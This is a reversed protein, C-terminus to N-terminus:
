RTCVRTINEKPDDDFVQQLIIMWGKKHPDDEFDLYADSNKKSVRTIM